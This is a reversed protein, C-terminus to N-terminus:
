RITASADCGDKDRETWGGMRGLEIYYRRCEQSEQKISYDKNMGRQRRAKHLLFSHVTTNSHWHIEGTLKLSYQRVAPIEVIMKASLVM